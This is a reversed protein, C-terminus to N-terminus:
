RRLGAPVGVPLRARGAAPREGARPGGAGPGGRGRDADPQDHRGGPQAPRDSGVATRDRRGAGGAAPRALRRGGGGGGGPGARGTRRRQRRRIRGAAPLRRDGGGSGPGPRRAGAGGGRTGRRARRCRCRGLGVRRPPLLCGRGAGGLDRHGRARRDAAAAVAGGGCRDLAARRRRQPGGGPHGGGLGRVRVGGRNRGAAGAPLQGPPAPSLQGGLLRGGGVWCCASGPPSALPRVLCAWCWARPSCCGGSTRAGADLRHQKCEVAGLALSPSASGGPSHWTPVTLDGM